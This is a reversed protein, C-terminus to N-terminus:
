NPVLRLRQYLYSSCSNLVMRLQTTAGLSAQPVFFETEVSGLNRDLFVFILNEGWNVHMVKNLHDNVDYSLFM